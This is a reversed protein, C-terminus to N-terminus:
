LCRGTAMRREWRVDGRARRYAPVTGSEIRNALQAARRQIDVTQAHEFHREILRSLRDIEHDDALRNACALSFMFTEPALDGCDAARNFSVLAETTRDPIGALAQGLHSHLMSSLPDFKLARRFAEVAQPWDCLRLYILGLQHWYDASDKDTRKELLLWEAQKYHRREICINVLSYLADSRIQQNPAHDILRQLIRTAGRYSHMMIHAGACLYSIQALDRTLDPDWREQRRATGAKELVHLAKIPKGTGLYAIGQGAQLQWDLWDHRISAFFDLGIDYTKLQLLTQAVMRLRQPRVEPNPFHNLGPPFHWDDNPVMM